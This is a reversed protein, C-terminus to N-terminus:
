QISLGPRFQIAFCIWCSMQETCVCRSSWPQSRPCRFGRIIKLGLSSHQTRSPLQGRFCLSYFDTALCLAATRRLISFDDHGLVSGHDNITDENWYHLLIASLILTLSTEPVSAYQVPWSRQTGDALGTWCLLHPWQCCCVQTSAHSSPTKWGWDWQDTRAWDLPPTRVMEM